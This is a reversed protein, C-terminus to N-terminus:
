CDPDYDHWEQQEDPQGDDPPWEEKAFRGRADRKRVWGNDCHRCDAPEGAGNIDLGTGACHSCRDPM